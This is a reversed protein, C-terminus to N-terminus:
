RRRPHKVMFLDIILVITSSVAIALVDAKFDNIDQTRYPLMGQIIETIGAFICGWAILSIVHGITEVASWRQHDFSFFGLLPFPFFMCFHAIKDMPIGFLYKPAEPLDKFNNFCLFGVALIYLIMLIRSVLARTSTEEKKKM